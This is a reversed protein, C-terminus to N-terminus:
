QFSCFHRMRELPFDYQDSSGRRADAFRSRQCHRLRARFDRYARPTGISQCIEGLTCRALHQRHFQVDGVFLRATGRHGGCDLAEAPQIHEHVIGPQHQDARNETRVGRLPGPHHAGVQESRHVGRVGRQWM